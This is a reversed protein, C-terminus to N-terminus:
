HSQSTTALKATRLVSVGHADGVRLQGRRRQPGDDLFEDGAFARVMRRDLPSNFRHQTLEVSATDLQMEIAFGLGAVDQRHFLIRRRAAPRFLPTM